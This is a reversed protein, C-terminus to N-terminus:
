VQDTELGLAYLLRHDAADAVVLLVARVLDARQLQDDAIGGLVELSQGGESEIHLFQLSRNSLCPILHHCRKALKLLIYFFRQFGNAGTDTSDEDFDQILNLELCSLVILQQRGQLVQLLLLSIVIDKHAKHLLQQGSHGQLGLILLGLHTAALDLMCDVGNLGLHLLSELALLSLNPGLKIGEELLQLLSGVMGRDEITLHVELKTGLELM